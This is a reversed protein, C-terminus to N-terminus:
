PKSPHHDTKKTLGSRRPGSSSLFRPSASTTRRPPWDCPVVRQCLPEGEDPDLTVLRGDEGVVVLRFDTITQTHIWGPPPLPPAVNNPFPLAAPQALDADASTWIEFKVTSIAAVPIVRPVLGSPGEWLGALVTRVAPAATQRLVTRHFMRPVSTSPAHSVCGNDLNM